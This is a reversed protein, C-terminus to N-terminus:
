WERLCPMANCNPLAVLLFIYSIVPMPNSWHSFHVSLTFCILHVFVLFLWWPAPYIPMISHSQSLSLTFLVSSMVTKPNSWHSFHTSLTFYILYVFVLFLWWPAAHIPMISHSRSLSLTFLVSSIVTIPKSWQPFHILHFSALFHFVSINKWFAFLINVSFKIWFQLISASLLDLEKKTCMSVIGCM